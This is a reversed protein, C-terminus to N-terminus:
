YLANFPEKKMFASEFTRRGLGLPGLSKHFMLTRQSLIINPRLSLRLLGERYTGVEDTSIILVNEARRDPPFKETWFLNFKLKRVQEKWLTESHFFKVEALVNQQELGTDADTQKDKRQRLVEEPM